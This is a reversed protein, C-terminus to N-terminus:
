LGSHHETRKGAPEYQVTHEPLVLVPIPSKFIMAKTTSKFFWKELLTHKHPVLALMNVHEAQVFFSLAEAVDKNQAYSFQTDLKRSLPTLKSSCHTLEFVEEFRNSIVRVIFMKSQFREGIESLTDLTHVDTEPEIDSALAIRAPAQYHAEEPVVIVPIPSHKALDTATSGFIQRFTKSHNKMGCIIIDAKHKRAAEIIARASPGEATVKEVNVGADGTARLHQSLRDLVAARTDEKPVAIAMEPVALVQIQYAHFLIVNAKFARAMGLGYLLANHSANTFDTAILITNM